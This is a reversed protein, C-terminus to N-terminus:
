AAHMLDVIEVASDMGAVVNSDFTVCDCVDSIEVVDGRVISAFFM